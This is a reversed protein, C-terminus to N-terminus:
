VFRIYMAGSARILVFRGCPEQNCHIYTYTHTYFYQSSTHHHSPKLLTDHTTQKPHQQTKLEPPSSPPYRHIDTHTPFLTSNPTEINQAMRAYIKSM